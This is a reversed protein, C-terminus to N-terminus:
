NCVLILDIWSSAMMGKMSESRELINVMKVLSNALRVLSSEWMELICDLMELRNGSMVRTNELRVM